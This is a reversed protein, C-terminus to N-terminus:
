CNFTSAARRSFRFETRLIFTPHGVATQLELELSVVTGATGGGGSMSLCHTHVCECMGVHIIIYAKVVM